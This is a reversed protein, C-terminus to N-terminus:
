LLTSKPLLLFILILLVLKKKIPWFLPIVLWPILNPKIKLKLKLKIKEKTNQKNEFVEKDARERKREENSKYFGAAEILERIAKAVTWEFSNNKGMREVIRLLNLDNM